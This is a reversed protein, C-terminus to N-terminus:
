EAELRDPCKITRAHQTCLRLVFNQLYIFDRAEFDQRRSHILIHKVRFPSRILGCVRPKFGCTWALTGWKESLM